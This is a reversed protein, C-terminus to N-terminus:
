EEPTRSLTLAAETCDRGNGLMPVGRRAAGGDLIAEVFVDNFNDERVFVEDEVVVLVVAVAVVVAAAAVGLFGGPFVLPLDLGGM